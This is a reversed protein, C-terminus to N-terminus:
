AAEDKAAGRAALQERAARAANDVDRVMKQLSDTMRAGRVMSVGFLPGVGAAALAGRIETASLWRRELSGEGPFLPQLGKTTEHFEGVLSSIEALCADIKGGIRILEDVHGGAAKLTDRQRKDHKEWADEAQMELNRQMTRLGRNFQEEREIDRELDRRANKPTRERRGRLEDMRRDSERIAKENERIQRSLSEAKAM